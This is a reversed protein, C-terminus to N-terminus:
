YELLGSDRRLFRMRLMNRWSLRRFMSRIRRDAEARRSSPRYRHRGHPVLRRFMPIKERARM